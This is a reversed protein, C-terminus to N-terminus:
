FKDVIILLLVNHVFDARRGFVNEPALFHWSLDLPRNKGAVDTFDVFM